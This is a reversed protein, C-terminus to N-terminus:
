QARTDRRQKKGAPQLVLAPPPDRTQVVAAGAATPAETMAHLLEVREKWLSLSEVKDDTYLLRHTHNVMNFSTIEAAYFRQDLEWWVNVKTGTAKSGQATLIAGVHGAAALRLASVRLCPAAAGQAVPNCARCKGCRQEEGDGISLRQPRSAALSMPGDAVPTTTVQQLAEAEHLAKEFMNRQFRTGGKGYGDKNAEWGAQLDTLQADRHWHCTADGLYVVMVVGDTKPKRALIREPIHDGAGADVILGPWQPYPSQKVWVLRRKYPDKVYVNQALQEPSLTSRMTMFSIACRSSSPNANGKAASDLALQTGDSVTQVLGALPGNLNWGATRMRKIWVDVAEASPADGLAGVFSGLATFPVHLPAMGVNCDAFRGASDHLCWANRPWSSPVAAKFPSANRAMYKHTYPFRLQMGLWRAIPVCVANGILGWRIAVEFHREAGERSHSVSRSACVAAPDTWDEPLGQLREADQIRLLGFQKDKGKLVAMRCNGTTFTPTMGICPSSQASSLDICVGLPWVDAEDLDGDDKVSKDRAPTGDLEGAVEEPAPDDVAKASGNGPAICAAPVPRRDVPALLACEYCPKGFLSTCVAGSSFCEYNTSLLVDRPDGHLSAVIFVRRRRQPIGFAANCVVRHAWNFGLRELESVVYVIGPERASGGDADNHRDLLGTVNELVVWQVRPSRPHALLRFVHRVLGSATGDIGARSGARSVDVCPFSASLLETEAPLCELEAVTSAM